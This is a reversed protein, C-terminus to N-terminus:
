INGLPITCNNHDKQELLPPNAVLLVTDGDFYFERDSSLM